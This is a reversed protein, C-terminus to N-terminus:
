PRAAEILREFSHRARDLAKPDSLLRSTSHYALTVGHLDTAFQEPDADERFHGEAIGSRFVQAITDLWDRRDRVLQDRVPGPKDDLETEAAIFLCGGPQASWELKREFLERMRPEGRPAALAPQVVREIFRQRAHALVQLQLSEKSRFHAFLGSKSLGAHSALSGITLGELGVQRAQAWAEDLIAQRTAEGKSV